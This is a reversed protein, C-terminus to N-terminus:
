RPPKVLRKLRFAYYALQSFTSRQRKTETLNNLLALLREVRLDFDSQLMELVKSRNRRTSVAVSQQRFTERILKSLTEWDGPEFYSAEHNRVALESILDRGSTVIPLGAWLYDLIRARTSLEDEWSGTALNVCVDAQLYYKAREKFAVFGTVSIMEALGYKDALQEIQSRVDKPAFTPPNDGMFLIRFDIDRLLSAAKFLTEYDYWPNLCGAVLIQFRDKAKALTLSGNRAPPDRPPTPPVVQILEAEKQVGRSFLFGLIYYRLRESTCLILSASALAEQKVRATLGRPYKRLYTSELLSPGIFDIVFSGHTSPLFVCLAWSALYIVDPQLDDIRQSIARRHCRTPIIKLGSEELPGVAPRGYMDEYLSLVNVDAEKALRTLLVWTRYGAGDTVNMGFPLPSSTLAM